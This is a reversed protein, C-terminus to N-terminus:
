KDSVTRLAHDWIGESLVSVSSADFHDDEGRRCIMVGERPLIFMVAPDGRRKKDERWEFPVAAPWSRIVRLQGAFRYLLLSVGPFSRLEKASFIIHRLGIM